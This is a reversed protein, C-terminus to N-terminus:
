QPIPIYLQTVSRNSYSHIKKHFNIVIPLHRQWDIAFPTALEIAFKIGFMGKMLILGMNKFFIGANM